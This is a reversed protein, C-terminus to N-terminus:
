FRPRTKSSRASATHRQLRRQQGETAAANMWGIDLQKWDQAHDGDPILGSHLLRLGMREIAQRKKAATSKCLGIQQCVLGMLPINDLTKAPLHCDHQEYIAVLADLSAEKRTLVIDELVRRCDHSDEGPVWGHKGLNEIAKALKSDADYEFQAHALRLANDDPRTEHRDLIRMLISHAEPPGMQPLVNAVYQRLEANADPLLEAALPMLAKKHAASRPMAMALLQLAQWRFVPGPNPWAGGDLAERALDACAQPDDSGMAAKVLADHLDKTAPNFLILTSEATM